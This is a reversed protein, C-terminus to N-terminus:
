RYLLFFMFFLAHAATHLLLCNYDSQTKGSGNHSAFKRFGTKGNKCDFLAAVDASVHIFVCAPVSNPDM